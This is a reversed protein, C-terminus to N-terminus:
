IAGELATELAAVIEPPSLPTAAPPDACVCLACVLPILNAMLETVEAQTPITPDIVLRRGTGVRYGDKGTGRALAVWSRHFRLATRREQRRLFATNRPTSLPLRDDSLPHM